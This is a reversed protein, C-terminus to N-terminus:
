SIFMYVHSKSLTAALGYIVPYSALAVVRVSVFNICILHSISLHM